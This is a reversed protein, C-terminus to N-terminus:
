FAQILPGPHTGTQFQETELIKKWTKYIELRKKERWKMAKIEAESREFDIKDQAWQLHQAYRAQARYGKRTKAARSAGMAVSGATQVLGLILGVLGIAVVPTM